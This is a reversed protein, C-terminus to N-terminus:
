QEIQYCGFSQAVLETLLYGFCEFKLSVEYWSCNDGFSDEWSAEDVCDDGGGSSGNGGEDDPEDGDFEEDNSGTDPSGVNIPGGLSGSTSTCSPDAAKKQNVYNIMATMSEGKFGGEGDGLSMIYQNGSIHKANLNHGLEHAVTIAFQVMPESPNAHNVGVSHDDCIAEIYACGSADNNALPLGGYMLHVVDCGEKPRGNISRRFMEILSDNSEGCVDRSNLIMDRHPDSSKTCTGELFCTEVKFCLPSVQYYSNVIDMITNVYAEAEEPNGNGYDACFQADYKIGM